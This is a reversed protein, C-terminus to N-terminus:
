AIQGSHVAPKNKGSRCMFILERNGLVNHVPPASIEYVVDAKTIPNKYVMIWDAEVIEMQPAWRSIIKTTLEANIQMSQLLENGRLPEIGVRERCHLVYGKVESGRVMTVQPRMVAVIHKLRGARM